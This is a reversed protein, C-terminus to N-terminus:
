KTFMFSATKVTADSFRLTLQRCTGGWSKDTKWVYTYQDTAADYSLASAGATMTQEVDDIATGQCDVKQSAPSAVQFINLGFNGTLSFKVPVASGAKLRNLTPANDVPTFFGRFAYPSATMSAQQASSLVQTQGWANVTTRGNLVSVTTIDVTGNTGPAVVVDVSGGPELDLTAYVAAAAIDLSGPIPEEQGGLVRVLEVHVPQSNSPDATIPSGLWCYGGPWVTFHTYYYRCGSSFSCSSGDYRWVEVSGGEGRVYLTTGDCRTRASDGVNLDVWKSAGGCLSAGAWDSTNYTQGPAYGRLSVDSGQARAAIWVTSRWTIAGVTPGHVFESSFVRSEDALTSRNRDIPGAIGDNDLSVTASVAQNGAADAGTATITLGATPVPIPVMWIGNQSTGFWRQGIVSNVQVAAVGVADQASVFVRGVEIVSESDLSLVFVPPTTDRISVTFTAAATNGSADSASCTVTTPGLAFLGGSQPSCAVSVVGEVADSATPFPWTAVAGAPGTAELVLNPPLNNMVPGVTDVVTVTFTRNSSNGSADTATCNVLTSGLSFTSGSPPTCTLRPSPDIDDLASAAYTVVAGSGSTAEIRIDDPVTMYPPAVDGSATDVYTRFGHATTGSTRWIPNQTNRFFGSGRSYLPPPPNSFSTAAKWGYSGIQENSSLVLALVTGATVDIPPSLTVTIFANTPNAALISAVSIDASTLASADTPDPEGGITPRIDLRVPQTPSGFGGVQVDVRTLRGSVGVTFTQALSQLLGGGIQYGNVSIDGGIFNLPYFAQDIPGPERVLMAGVYATVQAPAFSGNVVLARACPAGLGFQGCFNFTTMVEVSSQTYPAFGTGVLAHGATTSFGSGSGTLGMTDIIQQAAAIESPSVTAVGFQTMGFHEWLAQVEAATAFRFGAAIYDGYGDLIQQPSKGQTLTLDLWEMGTILDESSRGPGFTSGSSTIVASIATVRFGIDYNGPSVLSWTNGRDSSRFQAGGTYPDSASQLDGVAGAGTGAADTRLSFAYVTGARLAINASGFDATFYAPTTSLAATNAAASALIEATPTGSVPDVSRLEVVVASPIAGNQSLLVRVTNLKGDRTPTFTQAPRSTGSSFGFLLFRTSTPPDFDAVIFPAPTQGNVWRVWPPAVNTLVFLALVVLLRHTSSNM